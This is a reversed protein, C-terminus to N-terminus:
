AVCLEREPRSESRELLEQRLVHVDPPADIGIRVVGPKVALVTVTIGLDPLVIQQNTRRSLVLM